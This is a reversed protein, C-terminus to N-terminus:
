TPQYNTAAQMRRRIKVLVQLPITADRGARILDNAITEIKTEIPQAQTMFKTSHTLGALVDDPNAQREKVMLAFEDEVLDLLKLVEAMGPNITMMVIRNVTKREDPHNWATHRFVDLDDVTLADRGALLSRAQAVRMSGIFRRDGVQLGAQDFARDLKLHAQHVEDPILIEARVQQLLDLEADDIMAPYVQLGKKQKVAGGIMAIRNDPDQVTDVYLRLLLRDYFAGDELADAIENSATILCRLNAPVRQGGNDFQGEALIRLVRNRTMSNGKFVEDIIAYKVQPLMGTTNFSFRDEERLVRLSMPGVLESPTSGKVLQWSGVTTNGVRGLLEDGGMSKATGPPGILFMHETAVLGYGMADITEEREFLKTKVEATLGNMLAIAARVEPAQTPTLTAM